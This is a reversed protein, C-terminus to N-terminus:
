KSCGRVFKKSSGGPMHRTKGSQMVYKILVRGSLASRTWHIPGIKKEM